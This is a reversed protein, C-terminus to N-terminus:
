TPCAVIRFDRRAVRRWAGNIERWDTKYTVCRTTKGGSQLEEVSMDATGTEGDFSVDNIEWKKISMGTKAGATIAEKATDDADKEGEKTAPFYERFAAREPDGAGKVYLKELATMHATVRDKLAKRRAAFAAEKPDVASASAKAAASASAKEAALDEAHKEAKSKEQNCGFLAIALLLALRM